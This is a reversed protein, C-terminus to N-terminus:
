IKLERRTEYILDEIDRSTLLKRGEAFMLVDDTIRVVIYVVNRTVIEYYESIEFQRLLKVLEPLKASVEECDSFTGMIPLGESTAYLFDIFNYKEKIQEKFDRIESETKTKLLSKIKSFIGM